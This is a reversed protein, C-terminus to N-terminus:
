PKRFIFVPEYKAGSEQSSLQLKYTDTHEFGEEVAIRVTDDEFTKHSKINAVNLGMYKGPKLGTFVNQITKRLFGNNWDENTSFNKFSQEADDSYQEWNFYPPSTFAFDLSNEKPIFVESGKKNLFYQRNPRAHDEKIECLGKFTLTAPDTGVYNVDSIIAGLIRGGYGMSMDWVLEGPKMFNQYLCAAATPRFNSVCQTGTYRRLLSRMVSEAKHKSEESRYTTIGEKFMELVNKTKSAPKLDSVSYKGFFSGTLLKKIGKKFHEEDEYIEMPTRMKGCRIGFSHPMYSWALSLGEQHPKIVNDKTLLDKCNVAQLKAMKEKRWTPDTNYYPFGREQWFNYVENINEELQTEDETFGKLNGKSTINEEGKVEVGQASMIDELSASGKVDTLKKM